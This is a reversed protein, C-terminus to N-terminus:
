YDIPNVESMYKNDTSVIKDDEVFCIEGNTRKVFTIITNFPYGRVGESIPAHHYHLCIQFIKEGTEINEFVFYYWPEESGSSVKMSRVKRVETTKEMDEMMIWGQGSLLYSYENMFIPYNRSRREVQCKIIFNFQENNLKTTKLKANDNYELVNVKGYDDSALIVQSGYDYSSESEEQTLSNSSEEQLSSNGSKEQSLFSSESNDITNETCGALGMALIITCVTILIKKM